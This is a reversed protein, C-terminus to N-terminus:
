TSPGSSSSRVSRELSRWAHETNATRRHPARLLGTFTAVDDLEWRLRYRAIAVGSVRRGTIEAYLALEDADGGALWLDREPPALGVTDWDTLLIGDPGHLVNGPHPEGHTVVPAAAAQSVEGTLRDLTQLREWLDAAHGALLERAPESFPGGAWPRDLERLAAELRPRDPLDFDCPRAHPRAVPTAGHLAALMRIVEAREAPSRDHDFRGGTGDVLPFLAVSYQAGARRVTEGGRATVPAVVFALGAEDHLALATDFAARLGDFASERDHGLWGKHDLDDLTAFYRHGGADTVEWHHSGGGVAAYRLGALELGWGAGLAAVVDSDSVDDPPSRM